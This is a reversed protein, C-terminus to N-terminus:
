LQERQEGIARCIAALDIFDTILPDNEKDIVKQLDQWDDSLQGLNLDSPKQYPRYIEEVPIHWYYDYPIHITKVGTRELFSILILVVKKLDSVRIDM